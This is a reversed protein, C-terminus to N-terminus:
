RRACAKAGHCANPLAVFVGCLREISPAPRPRAGSTASFVYGDLLAASAVWTGVVTLLLAAFEELRLPNLHLPALWGPFGPTMVVAAIQKYLCFAALCRRAHAHSM